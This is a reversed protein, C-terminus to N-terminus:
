QVKRVKGGENIYSGPSLNLAVLDEMPILIRGTNPQVVFKNLPWEPSKFTYKLSYESSPMYNVLLDTFKLIDRPSDQVYMTKFVSDSGDDAKLLVEVKELKKWNDVFYEVEKSIDM